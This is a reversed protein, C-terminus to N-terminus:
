IGWCGNPGAARVVLVLMRLPSPRILFGMGVNFCFCSCFNWDIFIDVAWCDAAGVINRCWQLVLAFLPGERDPPLLIHLLNIHPIRGVM